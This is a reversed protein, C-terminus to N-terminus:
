NKVTYTFPKEGKTIRTCTITHNDVRTCIDTHVPKVEINISVTFVDIPATKGEDQASVTSAISLAAILALIANKM